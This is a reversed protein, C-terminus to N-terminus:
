KCIVELDSEHYSEVDGTFIGTLWNVVWQRDGDDDIIVGIHFRGTIEYSSAVLSGVRM